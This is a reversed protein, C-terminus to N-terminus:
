ANLPPRFGSLLGPARAGECLVDFAVGWQEWASSAVGGLKCVRDNCGVVRHTGDDTEQGRMAGAVSRVDHKLV